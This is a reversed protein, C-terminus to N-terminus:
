INASQRVYNIEEETIEYISNRVEEAVQKIKDDNAFEFTALVINKFIIKQKEEPDETNKVEKAINYVIDVLKITAYVQPSILPSNLVTNAAIKVVSEVVQNSTFQVNNKEEIFKKIKSLGGDESDPDYFCLLPKIPCERIDPKLGWLYPRSDDNKYVFKRDYLTNLASWCSGYLNKTASAINKTSYEGTNKYLIKIIDKQVEGLGKKRIM